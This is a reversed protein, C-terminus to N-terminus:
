PARGTFAAVLADACRDARALAAPTYLGDAGVTRPWTPPPPLPGPEFTCEDAWLVTLDDLRILRARVTQKGTTVLGGAAPLVRWGSYFDFALGRGFTRRLHAADPEQRRPEFYTFRADAVNRIEHPGLVARLSSLFREKIRRTPAALLVANRPGPTGEVSLPGPTGLDHYHVAVVRSERTLAAVTEPRAPIMVPPRLCAATLLVAAGLGLAGCAARRM